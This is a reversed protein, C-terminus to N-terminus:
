EIIYVDDGPAALHFNERGFKELSDKDGKLASIELDMQSIESEYKNILREQRHLEASGKVWNVVSSKSLFVVWLLALFTIVIAFPLFYNNDKRRIWEWRGQKKEV